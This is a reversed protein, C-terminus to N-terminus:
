NKKKKAIEEILRTATERALKRIVRELEQVEWETLYPKLKERFERSVDEQAEREKRMHRMFSFPNVGTVECRGKGQRREDSFALRRRM